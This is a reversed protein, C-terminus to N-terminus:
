EKGKTSQAILDVSRLIDSIFSQMKEPDIRIKEKNWTGQVEDYDVYFVLERLDVSPEITQKILEFTKEWIEDITEFWKGELSVMSREHSALALMNRAAFLKSLHDYFPNVRRKLGRRQLEKPDVAKFYDKSEVSRFSIFDESRKRAYASQENLMIAKGIEETALICLGLAHDYSKQKVLICADICYQRANELCLDIGEDVNDIPIKLFKRSRKLLM